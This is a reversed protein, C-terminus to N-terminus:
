TRLEEFNTAGVINEFYDAFCCKKNVLLKIIINLTLKLKLIHPSFENVIEFVRKMLEINPFM